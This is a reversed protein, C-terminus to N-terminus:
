KNTTLAKELFDIFQGARVEWRYHTHTHHMQAQREALFAADRNKFGELARVTAECFKSSYTHPDMPILEAYGASVEPLAGLESSVVALGSAMAEILAICCTEPFTNPYALVQAERLAKALETQSVSGEYKVGDMAMLTDYLQQYAGDGDQDQYVKLSSFVRLTAEPVAQRILPFLKVLHKLGRFPTSTYVLTPKKEAVLDIDKAAEFPPPMASTLITCRSPDIAFHSQYQVAQWTSVFLYQDWADRNEKRKLLQATKQDVDHQMYLFRPVQPLYRELSPGYGSACVVVICDPPGFGQLQQLEAIGLSGFPICRVGRVTKEEVVRNFLWVEHGAAALATSLFCVCAQTGGLPAHLPTDPDYQINMPDMFWITRAKM